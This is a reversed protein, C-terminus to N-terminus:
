LLNLQKITNMLAYKIQYYSLGGQLYVVYPEIEPADCSLEISSGQIFSGCAMIIKSDYGPMDSSVPKVFNDIPSSNQIANCFINLKNKDNFEIALVIDSQKEKISPYVNFGFKEYAKAFLRSGKKANAVVQPAMYLGLLINRNQNLNAGIEKGIGPATLRNECKKILEKKGVIYGGTKAIGGGINKILSGCIVDALIDTEEIDEVFEGYCNDILINVDKNLDKIFSVVERIEKNSVSKRTSYGKSKQIVILKVDNTLNKKINEYDFAQNKLDIYSFDIGYSKLSGEEDNFGIISNLTDYPKGTIYLFKENPKLLGFLAIAISHTGSVIQTRVIADEACFIDAYVKEIIDRGDDNYAYGTTEYFHQESVNNKKFANLVKLQNKEYVKDIYKFEELLSDEIENVFNIIKESIDFEKYM